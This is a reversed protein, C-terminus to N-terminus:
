SSASYVNVNVKVKVKKLAPRVHDRPSLGLTVRAAANQLRQLTDSISQMAATSDFSHSEKLVRAM